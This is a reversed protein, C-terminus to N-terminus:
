SRRATPSTCTATRTSAASTASRPGPRTGRISRRQADQGPRQPLPVAARRARLLGARGRGRAARQRRRRLHAAHGPDRAGGLGPARALEPLTSAPSATAKPAAYYEYLIPGWWDIMQRKVEVPCPAAAHIAVRHSSLDFARRQEDPLKLMRVFMTPVWQSHTVRYREILRLSELADFKDMMVVTGGLFQTDSRTASRRPTTSRRPRYTSRTRARLRVSAHPEHRAPGDGPKGQPQARIIGKPRGTTGSSYLMIAGMWEEDLREARSSPSRTRTPRGARSRRRRGDAPDRVARRAACGRARGLGRGTRADRALVGPGERRLRRRRLRDRRADPLPQGADRVPRLAARGLVVELYRLNNEMLLAIHDGRKLGQAQLHRALRNSRADLERYTLVLGSAAHILAPKDPTERAHDGPYMAKAM